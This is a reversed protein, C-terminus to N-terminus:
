PSRAEGQKEAPAQGFSQAHSPFIQRLDASIQGLVDEIEGASVNEAIVTGVAQLIGAAREPEVDFRQMLDKEITERTILKDPGPALTRMRAQLLRPLQSLLDKAEDVTLRRLLPALACDLATEAQERTKLRALEKLESLFQQYRAEARAESTRRRSPSIPGGEGIQARVIAALEDLPETEDLLLDDLTVLGVIRKDEILPIRRIGREQMLKVADIRAASVPLTAVNATMIATLPTAKPDLEHGVVRVAIDRDTLIGVIRGQDQVLITGIQNNELARAAELVATSPKL